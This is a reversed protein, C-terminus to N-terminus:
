SPVARTRARCRRGVPVRVTRVKKATAIVVPVCAPEPVLYGGPFAIWRGDGPCDIVLHGTAPVDGTNGWRFAVRGRWASPVVLEARTGTRVVLGTKAFRRLELAREGSPATQLPASQSRDTALAVSGDVVRLGADPRDLTAIPDRCDLTTAPPAVPETRPPLITTTTPRDATPGDSSCGAAAIGIALVVAVVSARASRSV